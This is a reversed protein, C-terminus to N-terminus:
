NQHELGKLLTLQYAYHNSHIIVFLMRLLTTLFQFSSDLRPLDSHKSSFLKAGSFHSHKVRGNIKTFNALFSSIREPLMQFSTEM